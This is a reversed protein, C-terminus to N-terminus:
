ETLLMLYMRAIEGETSIQMEGNYKHVIWGLEKRAKEFAETKHHQAAAYYEFAALLQNCHQSVSLSIVRKEPEACRAVCDIVANMATDLLAYLDMRDIKRLDRANVTCSLRIQEELCQLNKETLLTDLVPNGTQVSADYVSAAEKASRIAENSLPRGSQELEALQMKLEHCRRNILAVNGRSVAYQRSKEELLHGLQETERQMFAVRYLIYQFFFIIVAIVAQMSSVFYLIALGDEALEQYSWVSQLSWEAITSAYGSVAALIVASALYLACLLGDETEPPLFDKRYRPALFHACLGYLVGYLLVTLAIYLLPQEQELSPFWIMVIWNRLLVTVVRELCAGLLCRSLLNTWSSRFCFKAGAFTFLNPLFGIAGMLLLSAADATQSSFLVSRLPLQVLSLLTCGLWVAMSRLVFSPKQPVAKQFFIWEALLLGWAFRLQDLAQMPLQEM